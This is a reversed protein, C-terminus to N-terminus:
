TRGALDVIGELHEESTLLLLEYGSALRPMNEHMVKSMEYHIKGALNIHLTRIRSHSVNLNTLDVRYIIIRTRVSDIM